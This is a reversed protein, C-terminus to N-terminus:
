QDESSPGACEGGFRCAEACPSVKQEPVEQVLDMARTLEFM